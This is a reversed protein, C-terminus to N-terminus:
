GQTPTPSAAIRDQAIVLTPGTTECREGTEIAERCFTVREIEGESTPARHREIPAGHVCYAVLAPLGPEAERRDIAAMTAADQKAAIQAKLNADQQNAYRVCLSEPGDQVALGKPGTERACGAAALAVCGCLFFVKRDMSTDELPGIVQVVCPAYAPDGDRLAIRRRM